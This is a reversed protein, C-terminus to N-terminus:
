RLKAQLTLRYGSGTANSAPRLGVAQVYLGPDSFLTVHALGALPFGEPQAILKGEQAGLLASVSVGVGFISGSVRVEVEGGPGEVLRAQVGAPLAGQLDAQTITGSTSLEAGRKRTDVESMRLPGVRLSDASMDIREIGRMRPLLGDFQSFSMRLDGARIDASQAQGWLLEIAPFARLSVSRVTGYKALQGRAIRAAIAPLALQAAALVVVAGGALVLVIRTARGRAIRMSAM